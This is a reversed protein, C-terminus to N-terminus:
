TKRRKALVMLFCVLLLDDVLRVTLWNVGLTFLMNEDYLFTILIMAGAFFVAVAWGMWNGIRTRCIFAPVLSMIFEYAIHWQMSISLFSIGAYLVLFIYLLREIFGLEIRMSDATTIWPFVFDGIGDAGQFGIPISFTTILVGFGCIGALWLRKTSIKEHFVRNFIVMGAYGSFIYSTASLSELNPLRTIYTGVTLISDMEFSRNLFSKIFIILILPLSVLLFIELLYLLNLSPIRMVLVALAVLLLIVQYMSTEPNVYKIFVSSISLMSITGSIYWYASCYLKVPIRIWVTTTKELIEPLGQGPFRSIAKVFLYIFLTGLPVSILIAMVSGNFRNRILIQPVLSIVNVLM